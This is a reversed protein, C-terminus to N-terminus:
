KEEIPKMCEEGENRSNSVYKSVPYAKMNKAPCPVLLKKLADTDNYNPDLWQEFHKEPLIVPMRNHIESMLKNPTTTIISFSPIEEETEKNKWISYVGSFFFPKEDKMRICMPQKEKDSIKKWEYFGDAPVLCRRSKFYRSFLKSEAVGEARANFSAFKLDPKGDKSWPPIMWWTAEMTQLTNERNVVIPLKQTPSANFRKVELYPIKQKELQALFETTAFVKRCSLIIYRGCM